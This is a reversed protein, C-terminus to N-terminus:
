TTRKKSYKNCMTSKRPNNPEPQKRPWIDFFKFINRIKEIHLIHHICLASIFMHKQKRFIAPFIITFFVVIPSIFVIDRAAINEPLNPRGIQAVPHTWFIYFRKVIWSNLLIDFCHNAIKSLSDNNCLASFQEKAAFKSHM